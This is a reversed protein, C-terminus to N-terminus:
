SNEVSQPRQSHQPKYAKGVDATPGAGGDKGAFFFDLDDKTAFFALLANADWQSCESTDVIELRKLQPQERLQLAEAVFHLPCIGM